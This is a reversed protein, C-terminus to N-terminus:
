VQALVKEYMDIIDKRNMKNKTNKLLSVFYQISELQDIEVPEKVPAVAVEAGEETVTEEEEDFDEDEPLAILFTGHKELHEYVLRLAKVVHPDKEMIIIPRLEKLDAVLTPIDLGSELDKNM